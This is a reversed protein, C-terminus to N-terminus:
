QSSLFQERQDNIRTTELFNVELELYIMYTHMYSHAQIPTSALFLVQENKRRSLIYDGRRVFASTTTTPLDM